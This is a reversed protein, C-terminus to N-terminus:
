RGPPPGAKDHPRQGRARTVSESHGWGARPGDRPGPPHCSLVRGDGPRALGPGSTVVSCVLSPVPQGGGHGSGPDGRGEAQSLRCQGSQCKGSVLM